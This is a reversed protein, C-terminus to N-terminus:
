ARENDCCRRKECRCPNVAQVRGRPRSDIETSMDLVRGNYGPHRATMTHAVIVARWRQGKGAPGRLCNRLWGSASTRGVKRAATAVIVCVSRRRSDM